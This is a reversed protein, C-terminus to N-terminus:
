IVRMLFTFLIQQHMFFKCYGNMIYVRAKKRAMPIRADRVDVDVLADL